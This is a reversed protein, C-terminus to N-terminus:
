LHIEQEHQKSFEPRNGNVQNRKLSRSPSVGATIAPVGLTIAPVGLTIAPIGGGWFQDHRNFDGGVLLKAKKGKLQEM